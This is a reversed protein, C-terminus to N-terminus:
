SERGGEEHATLIEDLVVAVSKSLSDNVPIPYTIGNLDCDSGSIAIIPINKEKLEKVAISEHRSDVVIALDPNKELSSLGAFNFKLKDIERKVLVQEKKTYKKEMDGSEVEALMAELRVIRKKVEPFNTIMGGIWRNYVSPLGFKEAQAAVLHSIEKKTGILLVSKNNKGFDKVVEKAKELMDVTKNLDFIDNGFKSAYIYPLVTPHRRSKKFGFHAGVEFLREILSNKNTTISM